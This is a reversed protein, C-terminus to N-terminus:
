LIIKNFNLLEILQFLKSEDTFSMLDVPEEFDSTESVSLRFENEIKNRGDHMESLHIRLDYVKGHFDCSYNNLFIASSHDPIVTPRTEKFDYKEKIKEILSPM